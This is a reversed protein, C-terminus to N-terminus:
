KSNILPPTKQKMNFHPTMKMDVNSGSPDKRGPFFPCTSKLDIVLPSTVNHCPDPWDLSIILQALPASIDLSIKEDQGAGEQIKRISITECFSSRDIDKEWWLM